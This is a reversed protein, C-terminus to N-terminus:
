GTSQMAAAIGNLSVFLAERLPEREVEPATRHQRLLRVQLLNLVDTYPNRLAISKKLVPSNEFLADQGTIKLIAQEARRYDDELQDHFSRPATEALDDYYKAITFRARAMERQASDILAEFFPWEAYLQQLQALADPDDLVADLAHGTGYWGPVIYRAQTWAFVWPIARLSEFDVENGARSVPRSAIPLRSIQEIPTVETYWPWWDPDDILARYTDMGTEAITDILEAPASDIALRMLGNRQGDASETSPAAEAGATSTAVASVVQELHRRAVQPLAYRFTIIEGQETFRIRGNHVSQPMTRIAQYTHGGGRGVTGGRGHFLRVDVDHAASVRGLRDISKHLAWNAMWYGGDKNSDSYGLMIEQFRDRANLHHAYVPHTYLAQMREHAAGLDEITEFLPVFDLPCRFGDDDVQGIGAEQALLMPELLDSVSHTMSVIFSGMAAPDEQLIDRIVQFTSMVQAAPEPLTAANSVLPRPNQLEAQLVELKESEDLAAYDDTVGARRLLVALADELVGSHQRIDLAAMHFGFTDALVRLRHLRGTHVMEGFGSRRLCDVVLELDQQFAARDYDPPQEGLQDADTADLVRQLRAEMFCLKLRYPENRYRRQFAADLDLEDADRRISALLAEPISAQGRAISLDDRLTRLEDLYRELTTRRQKAYTWRTVDATVNPNGDRDSGIWSRYRLFAGVDATTDYHHRLAQQVDQHIKPVTDWISGFMFYHGQEVEEKVTPREPRVEETALLMHILAYLEDLAGEQEDPTADADQLDALRAAIRQQKRFITQRRAETPHATLTPQIDLQSLLSVVEDLAYGQEKLGAVMADISEPRPTTEAAPEGLPLGEGGAARARKRNIRIIERQEAKNVLHFFTTYIHLLHVVQRHELSAITEAAADRLAPDDNQEARKCQLRLTEVLELMDKGMQEKVVEGLMAGLLNVQESLPESIGTGETEIDLGKWHSM